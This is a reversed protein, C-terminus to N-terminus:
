PDIRLAALYEAELMGAGGFQLVVKEPAGGTIQGFASPDADEVPGIVFLNQDGADMWLIKAALPERISQEVLLRDPV